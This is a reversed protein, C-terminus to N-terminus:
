RVVSAGSITVSSSWGSPRAGRIVSRSRRFIARTRSRPSCTRLNLLTTPSAATAFHAPCSLDELERGAKMGAEVPRRRRVATARRADPAETSPAVVDGLKALAIDAPHRTVGRFPVDPLQDLGTLTAAPPRTSWAPPAPPDM